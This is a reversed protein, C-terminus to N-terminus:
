EAAELLTAAYDRTQETIGSGALMRALEDIRHAEDLIQINTNDKEKVV